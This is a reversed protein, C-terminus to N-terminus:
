STAQIEADSGPAQPSHSPFLNLPQVRSIGTSLLPSPHHSSEWLPLWFSAAPPLLTRLVLFRVLRGSHTFFSRQQLHSSFATPTRQSPSCPSVLVPFYKARQFHLVNVSSAAAHMGQSLLKGRAAHETTRVMRVASDQPPPEATLAKPWHAGRFGRHGTSHGRFMNLTFM